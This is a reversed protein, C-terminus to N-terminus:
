SRYAPFFPSALVIEPLVNVAQAKLDVLRQYKPQNIILRSTLFHFRIPSFGAKFNLLSDNEGGVGGGLHMWRNGRSKAWQIAHYLVLHFPSNSFFDNRTGGLHAQVIGGCEFFLCAAAITAGNEVICCYVGPLKALEKFYEERFYYLQKAQVRDMTEIYLAVFDDLVEGLSVFRATYGLRVCKKLIRHHSNRMQDWLTADDLHLDVAVTESSDTFAGAPFLTSFDHGLIPHMRLFASCVSRHAMSDHLAKFGRAIFDLNHGADNVLIGPYGYPSVVDYIVENMDPFLPRCSRLLYPMFLLQEGDSLLMAEPAAQSRIADLRVYSPEHYLDHPLRRLADTWRPDEVTLIEVQM